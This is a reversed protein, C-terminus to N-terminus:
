IERLHEAANRLSTLHHFSILRRLGITFFRTSGAISFATMSIVISHGAKPCTRTALSSVLRPCNTERCAHAADPDAVVQLRERPPTQLSQFGAQRLVLAHHQGLLLNAGHLFGLLLLFRVALDLGRMRAIEASLVRIVDAILLM